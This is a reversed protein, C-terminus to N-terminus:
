EPTLCPPEAHIFLIKIDEDKAMLGGLHPVQLDVFLSQLHSKVQQGEGNKRRREEEAVIDLDPLLSKLEASETLLSLDLPGLNM